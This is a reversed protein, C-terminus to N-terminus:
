VQLASLAAAAGSSRLGSLSREMAIFKSKLQQEKIELQRNFRAISSNIRQISPELNGPKEAIPGSGFNTQADVFNVVRTMVGNTSDALISKLNGPTDELATKFKASDFSLTATAGTTGIGLGAMTTVGSTIGSVSGGLMSRLTGAITRVDQQGNLPGKVADKGTGTVKTKDTFYKVLDNYADVFSQMKAVVADADTGVTVDASGSDAKLTVTLGPVGTETETFVDDPSSIPQGGNFGDVTIQANTGLTASGTLGLAAAFNGSGGADTATINTPGGTKNTLVVRDLTKDYAATVGASSNNIRSLVTSLTDTSANYAIEVGNVFFKGTGSGGDTVATRSRLGNGGDNMVASVNLGGLAASSTVSSSSGDTQLRLLSLANSTDAGSGLTINSGSTLSFKDTMSDYSATVGAGSGNIATVLSDITDTGTVAIQTGNITFNGAVFTSGLSAPDNLAKTTDVNLGQDSTGNLVSRTSRNLINVRYTGAVGSTSASVDLKATDSSSAKYSIIKTADNLKKAATRLAAMKTDLGKYAEQRSLIQSKQQNLRNLGQREIAMLQSVISSTDLGSNLGSFSIPAISM